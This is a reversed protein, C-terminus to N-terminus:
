SVSGARLREVGAVVAAALALAGLLMLMRGNLALGDGDAGGLAAGVIVLVGLVAAVLGLYVRGVRDSGLAAVGVCGLVFIVLHGLPTASMGVVFVGPADVFGDFHGRLLGLLGVILLFGGIWRTAVERPGQGTAPDAGDATM